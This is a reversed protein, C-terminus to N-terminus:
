VGFWPYTRKRLNHTSKKTESLYRSTYGIPRGEGKVTRHSLWVLFFIPGENKMVYIPVEKSQGKYQVTVKFFGMPEVPEGM